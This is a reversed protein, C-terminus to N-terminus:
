WLLVTGIETENATKDFVVCNGFGVCGGALFTDTPCAYEEHAIVITYRWEGFSVNLAEIQKDAFTIGKFNSRVPIKKVELTHNKDLDSLALMTFAGTFGDGSFNTTVMKNSEYQNYHRSLKSESVFSELGSTLLVMQANVKQGKYIYRNGGGNLEGTNNFHFFQNYTHQGDTYFEDAIVIIDPKLYIVRRNVYVGSEIYALHGGEAYGYRANSYFRRNIGRTLDRCEWSDKCVYIDKGDVMLTNHARLEKFAARGDGFVYTYRGADVMIDEGRSFLDIHLKDAHGHGAGLTGNHFHLYTANESWNSRFYFNGSDPFEKDTEVPTGATLTDYVSLGAEGMDWSADYDPYSRSKLLGDDFLAAGRALLDRQDIDDSDGMCLEHHNPKGAYLDAHCMNRTNRIIVEPLDIGNRAALTVVDLYCSLVENHYMPSQEWHMGDRYVQMEIELALRRASESTYEKARDSDPLMVGAMFLGHNALVGWNSMLNYPNWIKMLFEAHETISKCFLEIVTDDVIPSDEFYCIAKLWYELRLGVEISRWAKECKPDDPRVTKIWHCLQKAFSQAYKEDHTFTYAQGLCIWFRMRNFAYIWEPDDGPQYLWDIDSTFIVPELTREMDWRLNFLFRNEAVDDANKITRECDAPYHAQAYEAIKVPDRFFFHKGPQNFFHKGLQNFFSDKM